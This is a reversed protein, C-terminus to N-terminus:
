VHARGIETGKGHVITLMTLNQRMAKDLFDDLNHIAEEADLGRLDLKISPAESVTAESTRRFKPIDKKAPEETLRLDRENINVTLIGAKVQLNGDKDPPTLVIGNVGMKTLLVTDGAILDRIKLYPTEPTKEKLNSRLNKSIRNIESKKQNVANWDVNKEAEKRLINLEDYVRSVELRAAEIIKDAENQAKKILKEKETEYIQEKKSASLRLDSAEAHLKRVEERESELQKRDAELRSIVDEFRRSDSSIYKKAHDIIDNSLGIKQSIAFANSRGPVGMLIKYTPRLTEINFECSANTIGNTNLAFVKLEAYHTTAVIKAGKARAFEIISIALAAGETPDTGAGLEDFLILSNEDALELIKVINKMHSSFTSLSQEISQEDGIDAFISSCISIKSGSECPIHLGCAAMLSLLGLTKLSVTKGGTNPGTIIICDSEFGLKLNIPVVDQKALLPHRAKSLDFQGNNNIAPPTSKMEDSLKAKAFIFDLTTLYKNNTSLYGKNEAIFTSIEALIRDIENKEKSLLINLENNSNVVSAPEVFITAGSASIDHILGPIEARYEQKVPVVYRGNRQTIITDQLFKSKTQSLIISHLIEKIKANENKISKRIHFLEPSAHDSIEDESIICDEIKKELPRLEKIFFFYDDLCTSVEKGSSYFNKINRALRALTGIHLIEKITLTGGLDARSLAESIDTLGLFSPYGRLTSIELAATTELLAKNVDDIDVCPQLNEALLKATESYAFSSLINLIKPLELSNLSKKIM